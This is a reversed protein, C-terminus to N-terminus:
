PSIGREVIYIVSCFYLYCVGQMSEFRQETGQWTHLGYSHNGFRM